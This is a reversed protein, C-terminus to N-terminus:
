SAVAKVTGREWLQRLVANAIKYHGAANPHVDFRKIIKGDEEVEVDGILEDKGIMGDTTIMVAKYKRATKRIAANVADVVKRSFPAEFPDYYGITVITTKPAFQRLIAILADYNKTMRTIAAETVRIIEPASEGAEAAACFVTRVDNMGAVVTILQVDDNLLFEVAEPLQEVYLDDVKSGGKALNAITSLHPNIDRIIKYVTPVFSDGDAISDGLSLYMM